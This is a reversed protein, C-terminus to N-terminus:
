ENTLKEILFVCVEQKRYNWTENADRLHEEFICMLDFRTKAKCECIELWEKYKKVCYVLDTKIIKAFLNKEERNSIGVGTMNTLSRKVWYNYRTCTYSEGSIVNLKREVTKEIKEMENHAHSCFFDMVMVDNNLNEM